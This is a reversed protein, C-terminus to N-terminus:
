YVHCLQLYRLGRGNGCFRLYNLYGSQTKKLRDLKDTTGPNLAIAYNLDKLSYGTLSLEPFVIVDANESIAIQCFEAHHNINKEFDGLVSNIQAVAVKM